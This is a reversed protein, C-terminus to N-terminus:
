EGLRPCFKEEGSGNETFVGVAATDGGQPMIFHLNQLSTAQAVQWHIGTPVFTQGSQQNQNAMATLDINFNRIQRFFQNQNIYWESGNGGPIYVDTDILAIGSFAPMGKITPLDTPDGVFQTYYNQIIPSSIMYTGAPFYVVAVGISTSGCNQACRGGSGAANNIAETDDTVGDGKAGFDM